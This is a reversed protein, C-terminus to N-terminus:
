IGKEIKSIGQDEQSNKKLEWENLANEFVKMCDEPHVFEAVEEEGNTVATMTMKRLGHDLMVERFIGIWYGNPNREIHGAVLGDPYTVSYRKAHTKCWACDQETSEHWIWKSDPKKEKKKFPWM